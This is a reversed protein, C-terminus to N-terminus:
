SIWQKFKRIPKILNGAYIYNSELKCKSTVLSNAGIIINDPIKSGKLITTTCGIWVNNGISIESPANIITDNDDLIKHYDTDMIQLNVSFRCSEGIKIFKIADFDSRGTGSFNDGIIM